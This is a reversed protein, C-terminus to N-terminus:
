AADEQMRQRWRALLAPWEDEFFRAVETWATVRARRPDDAPVGADDLAALGDEGLQRMAAIRAIESEFVGTITEPTVRLYTRRDGPLAVREVLGAALLSRTATSASGASMQLGESLEPLSTEPTECVLLWGLVRGVTRALGQSEAWLGVQEVYRSLTEDVDRGLRM